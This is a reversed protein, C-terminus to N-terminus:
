IGIEARPQRQGKPSSLSPSPGYPMATKNVLDDELGVVHEMIIANVEDSTEVGWAAPEGDIVLTILVPGDSEWPSTRDESPLCSLILDRFDISQLGLVPGLAGSTM